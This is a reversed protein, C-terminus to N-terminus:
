VVARVLPEFFAEAAVRDQLFGASVIVDGDAVLWAGTGEVPVETVWLVFPAARRGLQEEQRRVLLQWDIGRDRGRQRLAAVSRQAHETCAAGSYAIGATFHQRLLAQVAPLDQVEPFDPPHPFPLQGPLDLRRRAWWQAWQEAASQADVGAPLAQVRVSPSLPPLPPFGQRDGTLGRLGVVEHLYLTLVLPQPMDIRVQWSEM